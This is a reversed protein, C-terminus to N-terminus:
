QAAREAEQRKCDEVLKAAIENAEQQSSAMITRPSGGIDSFNFATLMKTEEGEVKATGDYQAKNKM